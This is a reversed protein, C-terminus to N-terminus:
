DDLNNLYKIQIKTGDNAQVLYPITSYPSIFIKIYDNKNSEDDDTDTIHPYMKYEFANLAGSDITIRKSSISEKEISISMITPAAEYKWHNKCQVFNFHNVSTPDIKKSNIFLMSTSTAPTTIFFIPGTTIEDTHSEKNSTYDYTISNKKKNFLYKEQVVEGGLIRNIEVRQPIFDKGVFYTTNIKLLEGTILRSLIETKFHLGLEKKDKFVEFTEETYITNNRYYNFAGRIIKRGSTEEDKFFSDSM